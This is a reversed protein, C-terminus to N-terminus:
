AENGALTELADILAEIAFPKSLLRAGAPASLAALRATEAHGSAFVVPLPGSSAAIREYLDFGNCDPLNIDIVLAQPKYSRLIELAEAGDAALRVRVKEEELLAVLGIAVAEDDEVLLIETPWRRESSRGPDDRPTEAAKMTAPLLMHVTTGSGVESEVSLRGGHLTVIQQAIALGLGTGSKKTTFFPEFLHSVSEAGMGPGDDKVSIQVFAEEPLLGERVTTLRASLRITGKQNALADLANATINGLAIALQDRDGEIMMPTNAIEVSLEVLPLLRRGLELSAESLWLRVDIPVSVPPRPSTFARLDQTISRGRRVSQVIREAAQLVRPEKSSRQMLEAFPQIGMLVNNFQHSMASAVRGLGALRSVRALEAQLDRRETVDIFSVVTGQLGRDEGLIPSIFIEVPISSGDNRRLVENVIHAARGRGPMLPCDEARCPSGDARRDHLLEHLTRGIMEERSYGLMAVAAANVLTCRGASDAACIGEYTSALLLEIESTLARLQEQDRRISTIDRSIVLVFEVQDSPGLEPVVRAQYVREGDPSPLMVEMTIGMGTKFVETLAEELPESFREDFNLEALTKGILESSPRGAVKEIAPNVYRRRLDRSFRAILDPTSEVVAKFVEEHHLLESYRVDSANGASGPPRQHEHHSSTERLERQVAPALRWLGETLVVDNAGARMMEAARDDGIARCVVIFPVDGARTRVIELAQMADFGPLACGSLVLDWSRADLAATLEELSEVRKWAPDIGGSKLADIALAADSERAEIM